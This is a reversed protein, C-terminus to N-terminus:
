RQQLAPEGPESGCLTQMTNRVWGVLHRLSTARSFDPSGQSNIGVLSRKDCGDLEYVGGGSDGFLLGPGLDLSAGRVKDLAGPPPDDTSAHTPRRTVEDVRRLPLAAWRKVGGGDGERDSWRDIRALGYGVVTLAATAQDMPRAAPRAFSWLPREPELSVVRVDFASRDAPGEPDAWPHAESAQVAIYESSESPAGDSTFLDAARVRCHAATLLCSPGVAVASCYGRNQRFLRGVEPFRGEDLKGGGVVDYACSDDPAVADGAREPLESVCGALGAIIWLEAATRGVWVQSDM